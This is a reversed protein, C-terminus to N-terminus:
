EKKEGKEKRKRPNEPQVIKVLRVRYVYFAPPWVLFLVFFLPFFLVASLNRSPDPWFFFSGLKVVWSM